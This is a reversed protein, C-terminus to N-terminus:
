LSIEHIECSRKEHKWRAILHCNACLVTLDSTTRRGGLIDIYLQIAGGKRYEKSGNNDHHHIQLVRKDIIGCDRCKGGLKDIVRDHLRRVYRRRSKKFSPRQRYKQYYQRRKSLEEQSVM